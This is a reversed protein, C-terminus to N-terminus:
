LKKYKINGSRKVSPFEGHRQALQTRTVQLKIRAAKEIETEDLFIYFLNHLYLKCFKKQMKHCLNDCKIYFYITVQYQLLSQNM